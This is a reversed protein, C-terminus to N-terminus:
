LYVDLYNLKFKDISVSFDSMRHSLFAVRVQADCLADLLDQLSEELCNIVKIQDMNFFQLEPSKLHNLIDMTAQIKVSVFYHYDYLSNDQAYTAVHSFVPIVTKFTHILHVLCVAGRAITVTAWQLHARQM